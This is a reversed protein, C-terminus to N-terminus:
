SITHAEQTWSAISRPQSRVDGLMSVLRGLTSATSAVPMSIADASLKRCALSMTCPSRDAQFTMSHVEPGVAAIPPLPKTALTPPVFSSRRHSRRYQTENPSAPDERLVTRLLKIHMRSLHSHQPTARANCSMDQPM